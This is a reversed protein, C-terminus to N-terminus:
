QVRLQRNFRDLYFAYTRTLYSIVSYVKMGFLQCLRAVEPFVSPELIFKLFVAPKANWVNELFLLLPPCSASKQKWINHMKNRIESISPCNVMMHVLDGIIKNCSPALCYGECNDSWHRQLSDTRYRGSIMKAVVMAKSSEFPHHKSFEWLLHPKVVTCISPQFYCLSKSNMEEVDTTLRAKWYIRINKKSMAKFASKGFDSALLTLPHPLKYLLCIDRIQFFWSKSSSNAAKLMYQAHKHLPDTKLRCIMSFLSLQRSHLIGEFPLTGALLYVVARPTSRHLKQVSEVISKYHNELLTIEKRNLVLSALGSMLVSTGYLQQIKLATAPSGRHGRAIGTSYLAALSKKHSTIRKMVNPLNGNCSRLIGVHEAEEVFEVPKGDITVPNIVRAYEVTANNYWSSIPLLKIKSPVLTVRRQRCYKETHAAMLSLNRIDNSPPIVDYAQGIASVISSKINVGLCSEEAIQLQENNYLKYYDGSNIGGQEFGTQDESPGVTTGDWEYITSRNALRNDILNLAKDQMGTAYLKTCLVERLCRDFASQADLILLFIPKKSYYLSFQITETLLLAALEHSSGSKQYQTPATVKEWQQQYRDRLYLDLAKAVIPCTSITRYSRDSTRSKLGGKHIILGHAVNLEKISANEVNLLITNLLLAFHRIGETGANLYHLTTIGYVDAVNKKLRQLLNYAMEISVPPVDPGFKCLETIHEYDTLTPALSSDNRLLDRNCSKVSSMSHFFGDPIQEECYTDDGVQLKRLKASPVNRLSRIYKFINATQNLRLDKNIAGTVRAQRVARRYYKQAAIYITEAINVKYPSALPSNRAYKLVKHAKRLKYRAQKIRRPVHSSRDAVKGNLIKNTQKAAMSFLENSTRIFMRSLSPSTPQYWLKYLGFLSNTLLPLYAAIGNDTWVVKIKETKVRPASVLNTNGSYILHQGGMLISCSSVIVDHHSFNEPENFKCLIKLVCELNVSKVSHLILDISSDFKGDGVFHHYTKHPIIVPTVNLARCFSNLQKCRNVNNKNSNFDGRLYLCADPHSDSLSELHARLDTLQNSYEVEKGSTPLYVSTHITEQCEPLCLLISIFGSFTPVPQIEVYPDMWKRWLIMAGGNARAKRLPIDTDHLDDSNLFYCYKDDLCKMTDRLDHQFMQPESLFALDINESILVEM